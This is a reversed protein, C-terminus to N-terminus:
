SKTITYETVLEEFNELVYAKNLIDTAGIKKYEDKYDVASRVDTSIIIPTSPNIKKLPSIYNLGSGTLGLDLDLFVIDIGGIINITEIVSDIGSLGDSFIGQHNGVKIKERYIKIVIPEDDICLIKSM